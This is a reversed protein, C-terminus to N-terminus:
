IIGRARCIKRLKESLGGLARELQEDDALDQKTRALGIADNAVLASGLVVGLISLPGALTAISIVLTAAGIGSTVLRKPSDDHAYIIKILDSRANTVRELLTQLELDGLADLDAFVSIYRLEECERRLAREHAKRERWKRTL